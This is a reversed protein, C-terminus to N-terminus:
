KECNTKDKNGIRPMKDKAQFALWSSIITGAAGVMGVLVDSDVVGRKILLITVGAIFVGLLTTKWNYFVNEAIKKM